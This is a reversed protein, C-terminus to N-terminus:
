SALIHNYLVLEVDGGKKEREKPTGIAIPLPSTPSPSAKIIFVMFIATKPFIKRVIM